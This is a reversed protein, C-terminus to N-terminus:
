RATVRLCQSCPATGKTVPSAQPEEQDERRPLRNEEKWYRAPGRSPPPSVPRGAATVQQRCILAFPSILYGNGHSQSKLSSSHPAWPATQGCKVKQTSSRAVRHSVPGGRALRGGLTRSSSDPQSRLHACMTTGRSCGHSTRGKDPRDQGRPPDGGPEAPRPGFLSGRVHDRHPFHPRGPAQAAGERSVGPAM